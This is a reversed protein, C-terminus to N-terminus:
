VSFTRLTWELSRPVNQCSSVVRSLPEESKTSIKKIALDSVEEFESRCHTRQLLGQPKRM